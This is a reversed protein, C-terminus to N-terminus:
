LHLIYQLTLGEVGPFRDIIGQALQPSLRRKGHIVMNLYMYHCGIEEALVKQTIGAEEIAAKLKLLKKM